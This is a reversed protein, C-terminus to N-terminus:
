AVANAAESYLYIAKMLNAFDTGYINPAGAVISAVGVVNIEIAIGNVTLTYVTDLNKADIDCIDIYYRGDIEVYKVNAYESEVTAASNLNIRIKTANDLVLQISKLISTDAGDASIVGSVKSADLATVKAADSASYAPSLTDNKGFYKEAYAAYNLMAKVLEVTADGYIRAREAIYTAYEKVSCEYAREYLAGNSAYVPMISGDADYFAVLVQEAVNISSIKATFKYFGSADKSLKTLDIEQTEGGVSIVAKAANEPLSAYFNIGLNGGLTVSYSKLGVTSEAATGKDLATAIGNTYTYVGDATMKTGNYPNENNNVKDGYYLQTAGFTAYPENIALYGQAYFRVYKPKYETVTAGYLEIGSALKM